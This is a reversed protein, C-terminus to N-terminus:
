PLKTSGPRLQAASCSPSGHGAGLIFIGHQRLFAEKLFLAAVPFFQDRVVSFSRVVYPM